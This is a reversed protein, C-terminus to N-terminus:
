HRAGSTVNIYSPEDLLAGSLPGDTRDRYVLMPADLGYVRRAIEQWARLHYCNADPHKGIYCDWENVKAASLIEVPM